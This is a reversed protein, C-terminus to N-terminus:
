EWSRRPAKTTASKALRRSCIALRTSSSALASFPVAMTGGASSSSTVARTSHGTGSTQEKSSRKRSTGCSASIAVMCSLWFYKQRTSPLPLSSGRKMVTALMSLLSGACITAPLSFTTRGRRVSASNKKLCSLRWGNSCRLWRRALTTNWAWSPLTNSLASRTDFSAAKIASRIPPSALRAARAPMRDLHSRALSITPSNGSICPM